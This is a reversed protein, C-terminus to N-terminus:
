GFLNTSEETSDEEVEETANAFLSQTPKATTGLTGTTVGKTPKTSTDKIEGKWKTLWSDYFTAEDTKALIEVTTFNDKARFVKDISNEKKTEGTNVYDGADNKVTKDKCCELIGLNIDQELLETIVEVKTPAEETGNWIKVLKEATTLKNPEKGVTLLSINQFIVFGPLYVKEGEKKKNMYYNINGKAKGSQIWLTEKISEQTEKNMVDLTLGIAGTKAITLYAMKITCLYMDSPWVKSGGIYDSNGQITDDVTLGSLLSM